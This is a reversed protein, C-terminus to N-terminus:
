TSSSAKLIHKELAATYKKLTTSAFSNDPQLYVNDNVVTKKGGAGGTCRYFEGEKTLYLFAKDYSTFTPETFDATHKGGRHELELYKVTPDGKFVRQVAMRVRTKELKQELKDVTALVVMDSREILVAMDGTQKMEEEVPDAARAPTCLHAGASLTATLAILLAKRFPKM